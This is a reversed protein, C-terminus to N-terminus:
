GPARGLLADDVADMRDPLQQPGARGTRSIMM